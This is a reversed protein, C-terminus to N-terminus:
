MLFHSDPCSQREFYVIDHLCKIHVCKEEEEERKKKERRRRRERRREEKEERRRRERKKERERERREIYGKSLPYECQIPGIMDLIAATRPQIDQTIVVPVKNGYNEAPVFKPYNTRM